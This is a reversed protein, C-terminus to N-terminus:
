TGLHRPARGFGIGSPCAMLAWRSRRGCLRKRGNPLLASHSAFHSDQSRDGERGDSSGIWIRWLQWCASEGRTCPCSGTSVRTATGILRPLFQRAIVVKSDQMTHRSRKTETSAGIPAIWYCEIRACKLAAKGSPNVRIRADVLQSLLGSSLLSLRRLVGQVDIWYHGTGKLLPGMWSSRAHLIWRLHMRAGGDSGLTWMTGDADKAVCVIDRLPDVWVGEM